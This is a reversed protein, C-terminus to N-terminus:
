MQNGFLRLKQFMMEKSVELTRSSGRADSMLKNMGGREELTEKGAKSQLYALLKWLLRLCRFNFQKIQFCKM